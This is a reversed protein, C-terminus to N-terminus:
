PSVGESTREQEKCGTMSGTKDEEDAEAGCIECEGGGIGGCSGKIRRKGFIVGVAMATIVLIFACLTVLFIM